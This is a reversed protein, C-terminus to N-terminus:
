VVVLYEEYLGIWVFCLFYYEVGMILSEGEEFVGVSVFNVVVYFCCYFGDENVFFVEVIM